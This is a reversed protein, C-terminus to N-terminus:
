LTQRLGTDLFILNYKLIIDMLNQAEKIM